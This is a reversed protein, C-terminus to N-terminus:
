MRRVNVDSCMMCEKVYVFVSVCVCESVCVCLCACVRVSEREKERVFVCVARQLTSAVRIEFLCLFLCLSIVVPSFRCLM